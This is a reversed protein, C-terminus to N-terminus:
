GCCKYEVTGCQMCYAQVVTPSSIFTLHLAFPEHFSHSRSFCVKKLSNFFGTCGHCCALDDRQFGAGHNSKM